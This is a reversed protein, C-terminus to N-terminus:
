YDRNKLTFLIMKIMNKLYSIKKKDRDKNPFSDRTDM